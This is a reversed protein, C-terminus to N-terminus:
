YRHYALLLLGLRISQALIRGEAWATTLVLVTRKMVSFDGSFDLNSRLLLIYLMVTRQLVFEQCISVCMTDGFVVIINSKYSQLHVLHQLVKFSAPSSIERVLQASRVFVFDRRVM